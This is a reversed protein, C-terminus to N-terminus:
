RTTASVPKVPVKPHAQTPLHPAPIPKPPTSKAAPKAATTAAPKAAATAAPTAAPTATPTTATKAAQSAAKVPLPAAAEHQALKVDGPVPREVHGSLVKGVSALQATTVRVPKSPQGNREVSVAYGSRTVTEVHGLKGTVTMADGFLFIANTTKAGEDVNIVAIGGRIGITGNPTDITVAQGKSLKGGVFRMLGKALTVGARGVGQAPDYYFEDLVISAGPGITFSSGDMMLLQAQGAVDTAIRESQVVANGVDLDREDGGPPLSRATTNVATAVGAQDARADHAHLAAAVLLLGLLLPAIRSAAITMM